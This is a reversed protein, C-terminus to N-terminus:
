KQRNKLIDWGQPCNGYSHGKMVTIFYSHSSKAVVHAGGMGRQVVILLDPHRGDFLYSLVQNPLIFFLVSALCQLIKQAEPYSKLWSFLEKLWKSMCWVKNSGHDTVFVFLTHHANSRWGWGSTTDLCVDNCTSMPWYMLMNQQGAAIKDCESGLCCM